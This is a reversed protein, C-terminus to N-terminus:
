PLRLELMRQIALPLRSGAAVNSQVLKALIQACGDARDIDVKARMESGLRVDRWKRTTGFESMASSQAWSLLPTVVFSWNCFSRVRWTASFRFHKSKTSQPKVLYIVRAKGARFRFLCQANTTQLNHM